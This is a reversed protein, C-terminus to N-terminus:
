ADETVPGERSGAMIWGAFGDVAKWLGVGLMGFCVYLLLRPIVRVGFWFGCFIAAAGIMLLLGTGAKRGYDRRIVTLREEWATAYIREARDGTIGNVQLRHFVEERPEGWLVMGLVMEYLPEETPDDM